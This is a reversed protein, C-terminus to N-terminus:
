RDSVVALPIFALIAVPLPDVQRFFIGAGRDYGGNLSHRYDHTKLPPCASLSDSQDRQLIEDFGVTGTSAPAAVGEATALLYGSRSNWFRMTVENIAVRRSQSTGKQDPADLRLTEADCVYPLGAHVTSAAVSLTIQGGSVVQQPVVNGDALISVTLGNLHGLGTIVTAPAGSYSLGCDVFFQQTPDTGQDRPVMRCIYRTGSLNYVVWPENFKNTVSPITCISEFTGVSDHWSWAIVEQERMYTLALMKGDSRIAWVISDPEQQYAMETISFGTFLHQSIVSINSGDFGNVALQYIINRVVTGMQQMLIMEIGVIAPTPSASGRSGQGSITMSTPTFAGTGGPSISFEGDSTLAILSPGLGVLNRVINITRSPLTIGISDSDVLPSSVGHNTYNSTQSAWVNQPDTPTAAWCLRDQYFAVAAPFGRYTSWSGEAWQFTASLNPLGTNSFNSIAQVTGTVQTASTYATILVVSIWDFSNGTLDVTATGSFAVSPDASIRLLCQSEGTDGSENFNNSGTSSLSGVLSWNNGGDTSVEIRIKGTWSGNTIISWTAGAQISNSTNALSVTTTLTPAAGTTGNVTAAPSGGGDITKIARVLCATEGTAVSTAAQNTTYSALDSWTSGADTSKQLKVTDGVGTLSTLTILVTDGAPVSATAANLAHIVTPGTTDGNGTMAVSASGSFAVASQLIARMYGDTFSATGSVTTNTTVTSVTTWTINDPSTQILITGSWTGSTTASWTAKTPLWNKSSATLSPTTTQGAITSTLQWLAGVHGANFISKSATLTISGTLGSPTITSTNDTNTLRFPGNTNAYATMAWNDAATIVLQRPAYGACAFYMAGANQAFKINFLDVGQFPSSIEYATQLKWDGSALDTAFTGAVHGVLCIYTSGGQTVFAKAAYTTGTVWATVTSSALIQADSTYFRIYGQGFELTYAVNSGSVFPILRVAHTSDGAAAIMKTGPRNRIGGHPLVTFNRCTKLGKAYMAPLDVRAYMSPSFEGGAFTPQIGFRAQGM